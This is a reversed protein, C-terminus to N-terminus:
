LAPPTLTIDTPVIGLSQLVSIFTVSAGGLVVAVAAAGIAYLLVYIIPLVATKWGSTEHAEAAGMWVGILTMGTVILVVIHALPQYAAFILLLVPSQAFGIARTTRAFSGKRTLLYGAGYVVIISVFFMVVRLPVALAYSVTVEEVVLTYAAIGLIGVLLAPGTMLPDDVV